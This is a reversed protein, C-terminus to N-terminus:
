EFSLMFQQVPLCPLSHTIFAYIIGGHIADFPSGYIDAIHRFLRSSGVALGAQVVSQPLRWGHRTSKM